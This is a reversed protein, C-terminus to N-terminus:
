VQLWARHSKVIEHALSQPIRRRQRGCHVGGRAYAGRQDTKPAGALGLSSSAAGEAHVGCGVSVGCCQRLYHGPHLRYGHGQPPTPVVLNCRVPLSLIPPPEAAAKMHRRCTFSPRLGGYM